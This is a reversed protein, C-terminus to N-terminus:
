QKISSTTFFTRDNPWNLLLGSPSCFSDPSCKSGVGYNPCGQKVDLTCSGMINM